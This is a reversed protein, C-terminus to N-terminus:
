RCSTNEDRAAEDSTQYPALISIRTGAGPTSDIILDGGIYSLREHISFLGFCSDETFSGGFKATDFGCGKDSVVIEFREAKWTTHIVVQDTRAHKAVNAILEQLAKFVFVRIDEGMTQPIGSQTSQVRLKHRQRAREALWDITAPIGLEYLVPPSIEVTLNRTYRISRTLIAVIEALDEEMGSFVANGQLASVKQCAYALAQGLHDHLDSAIERRERAEALSLESALRRLQDQYLQIRPDTHRRRRRSEPSVNEQTEPNLESSDDDMMGIDCFYSRRVLNIRM